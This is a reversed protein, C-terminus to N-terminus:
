RRFLYHGISQGLLSWDFAPGPDHKPDPRVDPGSVESHGRVRDVSIPRKEMNSSVLYGGANYQEPTFAGPVHIRNFFEDFGRTGGVVFEVGVSIRNLNEEDRWRSKGAHYTKLTPDAIQTIEGDPWILWHASAFEAEPHCRETLWQLAGFEEGDATVMIEGIAHVIFFRIQSGSPRPKAKETQHGILIEPDPM